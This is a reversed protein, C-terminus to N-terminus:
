RIGVWSGRLWTGVCLVDDVDFGGLVDEALGVPNVYEEAFECWLELSPVGM